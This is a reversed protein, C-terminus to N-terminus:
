KFCVGKSVWLLTLLAFGFKWKVLVEMKCLIACTSWFKTYFQYKVATSPQRLKYQGGLTTQDGWNYLGGQPDQFEASTYLRPPPARYNPHCQHCHSIRSCWRGLQLAPPSRWPVTTSRSIHLILAVTRWAKPMTRRRQLACMHSPYQAQSTRFLRGRFPLCFGQEQGAAETSPPHGVM